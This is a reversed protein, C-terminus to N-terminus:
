FSGEGERGMRKETDSPLHPLSHLSSDMQEEMM